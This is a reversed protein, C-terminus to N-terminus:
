WDTPINEEQWKTIILNDTVTVTNLYSAINNRLDKYRTLTPQAEILFGPSSIKHTGFHAVRFFVKNAQINNYVRPDHKIETFRKESVLKFLLSIKMPGEKSTSKKISFTNTFEEGTPLDKPNPWKDKIKSSIIQIIDVEVM